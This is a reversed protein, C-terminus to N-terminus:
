ISRAPPFCSGRAGRSVLMLFLGIVLRQRHKTVLERAERWADTLKPPGEHRGQAAERRHEQPDKRRHEHFTSLVGMPFRERAGARSRAAGAVHSAPDTRTSGVPGIRRRRGPESGDGRDRDRGRGRSRVSRARARDDGIRDRGRDRDAELDRGCADEEPAAIRRTVAKRTVAKRTAVKRTTVKRTAAKRVTKRIAAKKVRRAIKKAAVKRRVAKRVRAVKVAARARRAVKRRVSKGRATKRGSTKKRSTKAM